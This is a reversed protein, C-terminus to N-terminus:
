SSPSAPLSCLASPSSFWPLPSQLPSLPSLLQLAATLFAAAILTIIGPAIAAPAAAVTEKGLGEDRAYPALSASVLCCFRGCVPFVLLAFVSAEAMFVFYFLGVMFIGITGFVGIRSDRMIELSEERSKGSFIGDCSDALGDMHLGGTLFIYAGTLIAGRIIHPIALADLGICAFALIAGIILGVLPLFKLSSRYTEETFDTKPAPLRSFFGIALFFSKM